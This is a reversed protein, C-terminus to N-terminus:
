SEARFQEAEKKAREFNGRHRKLIERAQQPSVETTESLRLVADEDVGTDTATTHLDNTMM